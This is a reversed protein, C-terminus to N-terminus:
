HVVSLRAPHPLYHQLPSSVKTYQVMLHALRQSQNHSPARVLLAALMLDAWIAEYVRSGCSVNVPGVLLFATMSDKLILFGDYYYHSYFVGGQSGTAM